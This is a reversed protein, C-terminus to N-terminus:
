SSKKYGGRRSQGAHALSANILPACRFVMSARSDVNLKAFIRRLYTAVTWESIQLRFAINKTAHGQAVLIAIELERGTLRAALDDVTETETEAESEAIQDKIELAVLLRGGVEFRCSEEHRHHSPLEAAGVVVFVRKDLLIRGVERGNPWTLQSQKRLLEGRRSEEPM